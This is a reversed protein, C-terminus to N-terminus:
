SKREVEECKVKNRTRNKNKNEKREIWKKQKDDVEV